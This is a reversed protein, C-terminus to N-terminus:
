FAAPWIENLPCNECKPNSKLCYDRGTQVFLAHLENLIPVDTGFVDLIRRSTLESTDKEDSLGHRTLIRKTYDDVPCVPHNGAYLLVMDATEPGIGPMALLEERVIKTERSLFPILFGSWKETIESVFRKILTAKANQHGTSRILELLHNDSILQLQKIQLLGEAKLREIVRTAVSWQSNRVLILGLIVELPSEAPWWKQPGYHALLREFLYRLDIPVPSNDNEPRSCWREFLPRVGELFHFHEPPLRVPWIQYNGAHRVPEIPRPNALVWCWPGIAMEHLHQQNSFKHLYEVLPLVDVIDVTGIIMGRVFEPPPTVGWRSLLERAAVDSELSRGAHVFIPGRHNTTWERNEVTKIGRVVAWAWPAHLTLAHTPFNGCSNSVNSTM